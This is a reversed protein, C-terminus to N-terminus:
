GRGFICPKRPHRAETNEANKATLYFRERPFRASRKRIKIGAYSKCNHMAYIGTRQRGMSRLRRWGGRAAWAPAAPISKVASFALDSSRRTPFSLLDFSATILPSLSRLIATTRIRMTMELLDILVRLRM